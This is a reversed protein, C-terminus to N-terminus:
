IGKLTVVCIYVHRLMCLGQILVYSYNGQDSRCFVLPRFGDYGLVMHLGMCLVMPLDVWQFILVLFFKQPAAGSGLLPAVVGGTVGRRM